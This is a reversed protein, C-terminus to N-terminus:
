EISELHKKIHDFLEFLDGPKIFKFLVDEGQLSSAIEFNKFKAPRRPEGHKFDFKNGHSIGNRLHRFFELEPTKDFYHHKKLEHGVSLLITSLQMGMFDLNFKNNNRVFNISDWFNINRYYSGDHKGLRIKSGKDFGKAELLQLIQNDNLTILTTSIAAYITQLQNILQSIKKATM